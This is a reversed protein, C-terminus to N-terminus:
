FPPKNDIPNQNRKAKREQNTMGYRAREECEHCHLPRRTVPDHIMRAIHSPKSCKPCSKELRNPAPDAPPEEQYM